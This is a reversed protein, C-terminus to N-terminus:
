AHAPARRIPMMTPAKDDLLFDGVVAAALAGRASPPKALRKWRNTRPDYRLLLAQEDSLGAASAYGGVVYLRGNWAAAAAHNLAVPMSRVRRWRNSAISYREVAATTRGGSREEFGGVVYISRGIRAAAVETRASPADTLPEWSQTRSGMAPISGPEQGGGFGALAAAGLGAAATVSLALVGRRM